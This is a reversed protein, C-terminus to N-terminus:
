ATLALSKELWSPLDDTIHDVWDAKITTGAPRTIEPEHSWDADSTVLVTQMGMQKPVELNRLSDEFFIAATPDIDFYDCFKVYPSRRPKPIYDVDDVGFSGDFLDWLNLHSAINKAHARSGNTFIFKRGPLAKIATRLSPDPELATLDVDHVYDLFEAPDMGHVAMLGSLTTGYEALYEKQLARAKMPQLALYRSVYDTMKRDIQGFFDVDARYLTNDLDFIWNNIPALDTMDTKM